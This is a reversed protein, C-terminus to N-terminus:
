GGRHTSPSAGPTEPHYSENGGAFDKGVATLEVVEGSSLTLTVTVEDGARVPGSLGMMMLHDGGPKLEHTGGAPIVFGGDKPRMAMKGDVMAVEHLEMTSSATSTAKAVTIEADTTNVLTGFAATMGSDAAKVWMDRGVLAQAPVTPSPTTGTSPEADEGCAGVLLLAAAAAAAYLATRRGTSLMTM